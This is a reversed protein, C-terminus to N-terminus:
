LISDLAKRGQYSSSLIECIEGNKRLKGLIVPEMPEADLMDTKGPQIMQNSKAARVRLCAPNVGPSVFYRMIVSLLWLEDLLM